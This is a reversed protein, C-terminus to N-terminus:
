LEDGGFRGRVYLALRDISGSYTGNSAPYFYRGPSAVAPDLSVAFASNTIVRDMLFHHSYSVGIGLKKIPKVEGMLGVIVSDFDINNASVASDPIAHRDYMVRAGARLPGPLNVKGDLGVWFTNQTDRAWQLDQSVLDSANQAAVENLPPTGQIFTQPDVYTNIDYDTFTSWFVYSGMLELRLPEIAKLVIGANIRAPLNYGVNGEGQLTANCLGYANAGINGLPDYDPPCQFKMTLDGSHNLRMGHNYSVAIALEDIPTLHVGAGFTVTRGTLAGHGGNEKEGGFISTASYGPQEIYADQYEDPPSGFEDIVNALDPLASTDTDAYWSSNVLAVSAGVALKEKWQYAAGLILHAALINGDRLQYRNPGFEEDSGGGRATPIALALGVGLNEVGLNSTVGLFPVVGVFAFRESGGYDYTTPYGAEIAEDSLVIDGYDPNDRDATVAGLTPAGEVHFQIKGANVAIGAPNWWLATPNTAGPTGYAGGVELLDLSAARATTGAILVFTLV